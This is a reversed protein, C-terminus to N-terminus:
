GPALFLRIRVAEESRQRLRQFGTPRNEEKASAGTRATFHLLENGPCFQVMRIEGLPDNTRQHHILVM